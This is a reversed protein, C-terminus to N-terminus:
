PKLSVSLLVRGYVNVKFNLEDVEFFAIQRM